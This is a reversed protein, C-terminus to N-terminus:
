TNISLRELATTVLFHFMVAGQGQHHACHICCPFFFAFLSWVLLTQICTTLDTRIPLCSIMYICIYLSLYISYIYSVCIYITECLFGNCACVFIVGKLETVKHTPDYNQLDWFLSHGTRHRCFLGLDYGWSGCKNHEGLQANYNFMEDITERVLTIIININYVLLRIIQWTWSQLGLSDHEKWLFLPKRRFARGFLGYAVQTIKKQNYRKKRINSHVEQFMWKELSQYTNQIHYM